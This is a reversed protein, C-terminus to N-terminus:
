KKVPKAFPRKIPHTRNYAEIERRRNAILVQMSDHQRQYKLTEATPLTGPTQSKVLLPYAILLLAVPLLKKM